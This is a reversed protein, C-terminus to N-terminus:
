RKESREEEETKDFLRRRDAAVRMIQKMTQFDDTEICRKIEEFEASFLNMQAILEDKNEYFLECWLNENIMAIRTLDRFSDGTYDVLKASDKCAMLAVAICHTLQSLFGIMEDHTEPSLTAIHRFGITEALARCTDVAHQANKRTPVVIYNAGKFINKDAHRVGSVERGGMPHAGIFELDPRLIDQVSYVTARKVGCVDTLLADPAFYRQNTKIWEKMASPYLCFVILSFSRIFEGDAFTRGDAIIGRRKAYEIASQDTDIAGVTYGKDSLADAYSGGILGLGIILIKTNKNLM